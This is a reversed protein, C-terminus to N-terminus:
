SRGSRSLRGVEAATLTRCSGPRLQPDRLGGIAVRRLRQVPHGIRQFMERIQRSRGQELEVTWWSNIPKDRRTSAAPRRRIRCPQTRKGGITIGRRLRDLGTLRQPPSDAIGDLSVAQDCIQFLL